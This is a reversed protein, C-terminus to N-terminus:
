AIAAAAVSVALTTGIEVGTVKPSYAAAIAAGAVFDRRSSHFDTM